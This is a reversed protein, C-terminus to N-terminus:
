GQIFFTVFDFLGIPGDGADGNSTHLVGVGELGERTGISSRLSTEAGRPATAGRALAIECFPYITIFGGHAGAAGVRWVWARCRSVVGPRQAVGRRGRVCKRRSAVRRAREACARLGHLSAKPHQTPHTPHTAHSRGMARGVGGQAEPYTRSRCSRKKQQTTSKTKRTRDCTSSPDPM